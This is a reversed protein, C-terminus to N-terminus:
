AGEGEEVPFDRLLVGRIEAAWIEYGTGNLHVLDDLFIDNRVSGGEGLLAGACDIYDLYDNTQSLELVMANLAEDDGRMQTHAGTTYISVYYLKADPLATNIQSFLQKLESFVQEPATNDNHIDNAGIYIVVAKPAFPTVLKDVLPPWSKIVTGGIGVNVTNLPGLDADSNTWVQMSSSGMLVIDKQEWGTIAYKEEIHKATVDTWNSLYGMILGGWVVIVALFVLIVKFVKKM